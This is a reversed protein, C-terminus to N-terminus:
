NGGETGKDLEGGDEAGRGEAEYKDGEAAYKDIEQWVEEPSVKDLRRYGYGNTKLDFGCVSHYPCYDCATRSGSKYPAISVRGDLIERGMSKLKRNVFAGLAEFRKEGAVSSKRAIEDNKVSVPVVTSEEGKPSSFDLRNDLHVIAEPRGNVLGNMRLEGLIAQKTEEEGMGKQRDVMPDAINYYFIGAPVVKKDPHKRQEKELAADMYVVLQLQLGYYAEMLDFKTKGTKYDIIKLYLLDGDECLDVRDIRGKLHIAEERSVPIKMARLNDAPSFTVEFGSPEFDGKKLQETLAWITRDTIRHVKRELYQNRASSSMITNGYDRTVSSVCEGVLKKRDEDSIDRFSRNEEKMRKFYLDISNHFLNGIDAAALEYVPRELLELGYALFHAYACSAYQEMRTVSGHLIASYIEKAATRGIGHDEYTYFSAEVLQKMAEGHEESLSFFRFLEMFRGDERNKGYDKLGEIVRRKGLPLSWAAMQREDASMVHKDPFMKLVQGILGSPRLSKGDCSSLAYSLYLRDSPKTMVLYLYLRQLFGEERATPALEIQHKKLNGREAETLIGGRGTVAPIIGDNVGAFFLVRIHSLRTRTIDGVVVRDVVAPILGVKIEEFGADLIDSYEKKGVTEDGLLATIRDFLEIVLGYVQSYEKELSVEGAAGFEKEYGKLKEEIHLAELFYVLAATKDKVTSKRDGFVEKLPRLPTLVEERFANLEDLNILEAGRYVSEWPSDWRKYSRIGLALVYNELRSVMEQNETVLGTKLYRFVTEYSFNKELLELAARLLEVMPNGMINKKYDIFAPIRNAEFQRVVERSYTDLAGTVVAIDRYRYGEQKILREIEGAIMEVEKIPTDSQFLVIGPNKTAKGATEETKGDKEAAYKRGHYRFLEKEIFQLEPSNKFRWAPYEKLLIDEERGAGTQVALDTLKCVTHKSMHFLHQPGSEKYPNEEPDMTITVVVRKCYTLLLELLRYQVPTFGTYGDLTVVSDKILESQPLVRCLLELIEEKVICKKNETYEKFARHLVTMDNLKQRLMASWNEKEAEVLLGDLIEATIGYQFFESLMSKLEGIFGIKELHGGFLKLEKKRGAAVKRLVMSKGMDDLVALNEVALEEFIRYALREFSVIDINMVGHCPHLTVIDKQTQMTFQEPVVAFYRGDPDSGAQRILDEYLRRTKGSGSGGIIFQLSM